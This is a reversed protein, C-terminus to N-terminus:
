ISKRLMVLGLQNDKALELLNDPVTLDSNLSSLNLESPLIMGDAVLSELVVIDKISIFYKKNKKIKKYVAKFDKETRVKKDYNDLFHKIVKSRHLIENDFKIKKTDQLGMELNKEVIDVYNKPIDNVDISKLINIFENRYVNSLKDKEFIDKLLFALELKREINDSLILSQYILGRSKYSPLNKM